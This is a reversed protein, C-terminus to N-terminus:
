HLTRQPLTILDRYYPGFHGRSKILARLQEPDYDDIAYAFSRDSYLAAKMLVPRTRNSLDLVLDDDTKELWCHSFCEDTWDGLVFGHCVKWGKEKSELLWRACTEFITTPMAKDDCTSVRLLFINTLVRDRRTCEAEHNIRIAIQRQYLTAPCLRILVLM